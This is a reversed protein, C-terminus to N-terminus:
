RATDIAAASLAAIEDPELEVERWAPLRTDGTPPAISTAYAAVQEREGAPDYALGNFAADAAYQEVLRGATQRYRGPLTEYDPEIDREELLRFLTAGVSGAMEGLGGPGSVSRHDHEHVGLDVQASGAFGAIDFADGLVGVELGWDRPVRLRRALAGTVAFEGALPYRFADLYALVPASHAAGLTEVVPTYFLRCLRGYLKEDEVRAYYGKAFAKGRALPFLLRSVTSGDYTAADADHVVVYETGAGTGGGAALGLGLWADRGKGAVGDLGAEALRREVRPATCWLVTTSLDFGDLWDVIPGVRAPEARLSVLVRAPSLAALARFTRDAAPTDYDRGTLPVLVTTREVPASPATNGFDHLTTVREQVYEM